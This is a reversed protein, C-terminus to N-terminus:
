GDVFEQHQFENPNKSNPNPHIKKNQSHIMIGEWAGLIFLVEGFVKWGSSLLVHMTSSDATHLQQSGQASFLM